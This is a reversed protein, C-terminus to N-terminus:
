GTQAIPMSPMPSFDEPDQLDTLTIKHRRRAVLDAPNDEQRDVAPFGHPDDRADIDNMFRNNEELPTTQVGLVRAPDWRAEPVLRIIARARVVGSGHVGIMNQGSNLSRGLCIGYLWPPMLHVLTCM